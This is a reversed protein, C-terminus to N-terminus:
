GTITDVYGAVQAACEDPDSTSTDVELHYTMTAHVTHFHAGAQGVTRDRRALERRRLEDLPCRVAVKVLGHRGLVAEADAVWRPDLLVHDVIVDWGATAVADVMRHLATVLRDGVPGATIALGDGAGDYRFVEHWLPPNLWSGPLAFVVTDIGLLLHPRPLRRQLAKALTTKGSSSAGNLLVIM